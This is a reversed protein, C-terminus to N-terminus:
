LSFFYFAFSLLSLFGFILVADRVIPFLDNLSLIQYVVDILYSTHPPLALSTTIKAYSFSNHKIPPLGKFSELESKSFPLFDASRARLYDVGGDVSYMLLLQLYPHTDFEERILSSFLPEKLTHGKQLFQEVKSRLSRVVAQSIEQNRLRVLHVRGFSGLLTGVLLFLSFVTYVVLTKRGM